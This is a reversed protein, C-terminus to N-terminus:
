LTEHGGYQRLVTAVDSFGKELAIKLPTKKFGDPADVNSVGNALLWETMKLHGGRAAASLAQNFDPANPPLLPKLAQAIAVDGGIATHYLLTLGHPGKITATAPAANLLELIVSRYGLM